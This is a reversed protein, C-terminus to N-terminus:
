RCSDNRCKRACDIIVYWDYGGEMLTLPTAVRSLVDGGERLALSLDPTLDQLYHALVSPITTLPQSPYPVRFPPLLRKPLASLLPLPWDWRRREICKAWCEFWTDPALGLRDTFDTPADGVYGYLNTGGAFGVPDESIFRQLSPSYYRARIDYLGTNDNERGTFQLANSSTAGSASTTGFPDFTYQTQLSGSADALAFASGLADVLSTNTGSSDTRSFTEDIGSGTLLNATPTGGALEQVLNIGDYLYNTTTGGVTKGRRRRLGDYQFSASLAGSLGVLRGRADWTYSTLGDSALNGNVDYSFGQGGWSQVRNAADSTASVIAEPLGTRAWSGGINTRNGAGDYTYTLGGLTTQGLTYTLSTLQNANNFGYTTVIGNPLTLTTRRNADDYTFSVVSAGQTISLLRHADDYGYSAQAQGAVTMTARRGDADYTYGVSGEPTTELLLRDLGDYTRTITGSISDVVQLLRNGADYGYQTTSTDAYTVLTLRDLADYQYGTVQGMRDSRQALNDNKDYGYSAGKLLPDTRTAVRNSTDYTYSTAHNLADTISALRSNPDYAFQTQGNLPDTVATVRNLKDPVMRTVQGLPDTTSLIRGAGDTFSRWVFGLPNTTSTKDPGAYGVQWAHQLPDTVSTVQGVTNVAVTTQHTLPDTVSTMKGTSDYGMTWTHQLPDTVTALQFFQPEYTYTTTAADSTGAARTVTTVHGFSDYTYVAHRGLGDVVETPLNTADPRTYTTQRQEPQGLAEIDTTVYHSPNFSLQEVYGRPNTVNTQTINGSQDTTYAFSYSANPDALTQHDVRGSADYHNTLYVINRGDKITALRNNADWTYTTVNNEPDTVTLLNGTTQNYAYGVTRGINDTASTIRGATDYTFAIWRGSPSTIRMLNGYGDGFTNIASWTLRTVNGYRDRIYQLPAAHGIVYVTGDKLTYEWANGNFALRSKYFATPGAQCEMVTSFWPLAPDSIRTYHIRGGDPLILDGDNFQNTSYQFLGYAHTMGTGFARQQSDMANYTRTLALPMVDPLYLDTKEMIYAGTSPDIPDGSKGGNPTAGGSPPTPGTNFSAGTFAYFRTKADAVVQTATVTGLGYVFWGKDDPDYNYFQVKTGPKFTTRNPYVLWAGKIPGPTRVYAGGPQITFFMSFPADSPLPFPTRDLPIPTLTLKRVVHGDEDNIVTGAPLHLELGPMMPTTVVTEATTPSPIAVEHATDLLPSWIIFPLANTMGAKLTIRAEYFGYTRVGRSAPRADIALTHEGTALGNVVLLFRGSRDTTARRGEMGLTVDALPRGDLRLVQGALATTGPPAQLPPVSQWPSDPRNARWGTPGASAEPMWTEDDHVPEPREADITTFVIATPLVPVGLRDVIGNLAVEFTTGPALRVRPSVFALRGDEAVVIAADVSGDPGSLTLTQRTASDPAIPQSFRLAVRADLLVDSQGNVPAAAAVEPPAPDLDPLQAFVFRQAGPDFVEPEDVTSGDAGVGGSILVRGDALLEARANARPHQPGRLATATTAGVDWIEADGLLSDGMGAGGVVLVRGDTLLTATHGARLQAGAVAIPTFTQTTPDFLEATTAFQQSASLGGVILVTGDPLLTATHGSRGQLLKSGIPTASGDAPNVILATALPGSATDGGVILWQGDALRTTTSGSAAQAQHLTRPRTPSAVVVLRAGALLCVLVAGISAATTKARHSM